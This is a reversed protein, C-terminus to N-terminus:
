KNREMEQIIKEKEELRAKLYEIAELRKENEETIKELNLLCRNKDEILATVIEDQGKKYSNLEDQFEVLRASLVEIQELRDGSEESVRGLDKLRNESEKSVRELDNLRQESEETVRHLNSLLETKEKELGSAYENVKQLDQQVKIVSAEYKILEQILEDYKLLQRKKDQMGDKKIRFGIAVYGRNGEYGIGEYFHQLWFQEIEEETITLQEVDLEEQVLEGKFEALIKQIDGVSFAGVARRKPEKSAKLDCTCVLTGGPKLVRYLENIALLYNPYPLHELVSTSVVVDFVNDGYPLSMIDCVATKIHREEGFFVDKEFKNMLAISKEDFDVAIVDGGFESWLFPMSSVGCGADLVKAGKFVVEQMKSIVYSYELKRIPWKNYSVYLNYEENETAEPYVEYAESLRGFYEPLFREYLATLEDYTKGRLDKFIRM